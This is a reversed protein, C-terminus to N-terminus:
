QEQHKFIFLTNSTSSNNEVIELDMSKERAMEILMNRSLFHLPGDTKNFRVIKTSWKETKETNKHKQKLSTDGDRIILKGGKNLKQICKEIIMRQSEYDVYHLVDSIIYGDAVPVDYNRLDTNVFNISDNKAFCNQALAIKQQDYDVGIIQRKNSLMSLMYSLAGYGCGLDIILGERPLLRDYHDYWDEMRLKIRMYWEIVPGKYIYNKIIADKFYSNSVRNYEEYLDNYEARFYHGILKTRERYGNGYEINDPAIRKLIKSVIIGKKIYFPQQKSSILGNGYLLIPIIDLNLQEALYFAGKHFRKIRCNVSRTGEPFIVISYGDKVKDKLSGVLTDYGDGTHCFNLYRVIKGFFPSHWVWGNTLMVMKPNLSLLILIDVFSQHNAIIVAPKKFSESYENINKVKVTPIIKIFIRIANYTIKHILIKRKKENVPILHFLLITLQIILCGILFLCFAYITKLLSLLTFPFGGKSTQSTIFLRFIFPQITYAVLVVVVIGVLSIFGLSHLAPHQAFVLAGMGIVVAFASFFIATKHQTLVSTKDKYESLLGDMIFISFDDGIGFIFTSLIITVINFEIGLLSMVGLILIWSIFMPTFSILTLELRGYSLILALFILVGSIYLILYFNNSVDEAIKGVFFARDAAIIGSQTLIYDYIEAKNTESIKVQATFTTFQDNSNIWDSFLGHAKSSNHYDIKSYSKFLLSNFKSYTDADFGLEVADANLQNYIDKRNHNQWFDNWRKLRQSQISDSILFADVSSYSSIKGINQLSDLLYCLKSYNDIAEEREEGSAIFLITKESDDNGIFCIPLACTQVGTM